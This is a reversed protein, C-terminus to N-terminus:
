VDLSIAMASLTGNRLLLLLRHTGSGKPEKGGSASRRKKEHVTEFSIRGEKKLRKAEKWLM